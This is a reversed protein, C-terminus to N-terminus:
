PRCEPHHAVRRSLALWPSRPIFLCISINVNRNEKIKSRDSENLETVSNSNDYSIIINLFRFSTFILSLLSANHTPYIFHSHINDSHSHSISPRLRALRDVFIQCQAQLSIYDKWISSCYFIQHQIRVVDHQLYNGTLMIKIKMAPRSFHASSIQRTEVTPGTPM